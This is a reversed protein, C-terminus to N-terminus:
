LIANACGGAVPKANELVADNAKRFLFSQFNSKRILINIFWQASCEQAELIPRYNEDSRGAM